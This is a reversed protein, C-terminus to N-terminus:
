EGSGAKTATISELTSASFYSFFRSLYKRMIRQPTIHETTSKHVYVWMWYSSYSIDLLLALMLAILMWGFRMNLIQFIEWVRFHIHKCHRLTLLLEITKPQISKITFHLQINLKIPNFEVNITQMLFHVFEIHFLIHMLAFQRFYYIFFQTMEAADVDAWVAFITCKITVISFFVFLVIFVKRQFTRKFLAFDIKVFLKRQLYDVTDEYAFNLKRVGNPILFYELSPLVNIVVAVNLKILNMLTMPRQVYREYALHSCIVTFVTLMIFVRPVHQPWVKSKNVRLNFSNQGLLFFAFTCKKFYTSFSNMAPAVCDSSTSSSVILAVFVRM